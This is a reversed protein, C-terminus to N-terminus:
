VSSSVKKGMVSDFHLSCIYVFEKSSVALPINGALLGTLWGM